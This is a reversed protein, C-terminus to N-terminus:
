RHKQGGLFDILLAKSAREKEESLHTYLQMTMVVNSHGLYRQATKVDVGADYLFTAYTHRLDNSSLNFRIRAAAEAENLAKLMKDAEEIKGEKRLRKVADPIKKRRGQQPVMPEGNAGAEMVLRFGEFGRDFAAQTLQKGDISKCVYNLEREKKESPAEAIQAAKLARSLVTPMPVDRNGAKTKTKGNKVKNM